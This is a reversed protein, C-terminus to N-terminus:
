KKREINGNGGKEFEKEMGGRAWGKRGVSCLEKKAGNSNQFRARRGREHRAKYM